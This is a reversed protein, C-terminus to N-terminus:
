KPSYTLILYSKIKLFFILISIPHGNRTNIANETENLQM